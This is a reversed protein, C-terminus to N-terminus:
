ELGETEPLSFMLNLNQVAQSSTGKWLNDIASFLQLTPTRVHAAWRAHIRVVNRRVVDKLAPPDAAIEFGAEASHCGTSARSSGPASM